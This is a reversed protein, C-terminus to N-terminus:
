VTPKGVATSGPALWGAQDGKTLAFLSLLHPDGSEVIEAEHELLLADLESHWELEQLARVQWWLDNEAQAQKLAIIFLEDILDSDALEKLYYAASFVRDDQLSRQIGSLYDGVAERHRGLNTLMRGRQLWDEQSSKREYEREIVDAPILDPRGQLGRLFIVADDSHTAQIALKVYKDRLDKNGISHYHLALLEYEENERYIEAISTAHEVDFWTDLELREAAEDAVRRQAVLRHWDDRYLLVQDAYLKRDFGGRIQTDRHCDFCVVALNRPENNAPDEDIHHIQVPKGRVRCVCCTRDAYFLVRAAVDKPIDERDKKPM